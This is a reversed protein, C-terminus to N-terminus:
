GDGDRRQLRGDGNNREAGREDPIVDYECGADDAGFADSAAKVV